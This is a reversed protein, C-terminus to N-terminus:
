SVLNLLSSPLQWDAPITGKLLNTSLWLEQLHAACPLASPLRGLGYVGDM